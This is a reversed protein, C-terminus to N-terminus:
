SVLNRLAVTVNPVCTRSRALTYADIRQWTVLHEFPSAVSAVRIRSRALTLTCVLTCGLALLKRLASTVSLVNTPSKALTCADIRKSAILERLARIANLVCTRSRALIYADCESCKYPKEGTHVRKHVTLSGARAFRRDCEPCKFPKEGTHVRKHRSLDCARAFRKDCETCQYPKKNTSAGIQTEERAVTDNEAPKLTQGDVTSVTSSSADDPDHRRQRKQSSSSDGDLRRKKKKKNKRKALYKRAHSKCLSLPLRRPDAVRVRGRRTFCRECAPQWSEHDAARFFLCRDRVCLQRNGITAVADRSGYKSEFHSITHSAISKVCVFKVLLLLNPSTILGLNTKRKKEEKKKHRHAHRLFEASPVAALLQYQLHIATAPQHYTCNHFLVKRGLANDPLNLLWASFDPALVCEDVVVPTHADGAVRLSALSSNQVSIESRTGVFLMCAGGQVHRSLCSFDVYIHQAELDLLVLQSEINCFKVSDPSVQIKSLTVGRIQNEDDHQKITLAPAVKNERAQAIHCTVQTMGLYPGLELSQLKCTFMFDLIRTGPMQYQARVIRLQSLTPCYGVLFNLLTPIADKTYPNIELTVSEVQELRKLCVRAETYHPALKQIAQLNWRINTASGHLAWGILMRDSVLPLSASDRLTYNQVLYLTDLLRQCFLMQWLWYSDVRTNKSVLGAVSAQLNQKYNRAQQVALHSYPLALRSYIRQTDPRLTAPLMLVITLARHTSLAQEFSHNTIPWALEWSETRLAIPLMLTGHKAAKATVREALCLLRKIDNDKLDNDRLLQAFFDHSYALGGPSSFEGPAAGTRGWEQVWEGSTREDGEPRWGRVCNHQRDTVFVLDDSACLRYPAGLGGGFAVRVTMTAPGTLYLRGKCYAVGTVGKMSGFTVFYQKDNGTDFGYVLYDGASQQRVACRRHLRLTRRRSWRPAPRLHCYADVRKVTAVKTQSRITLRPEQQPCWLLPGSSFLAPARVVLGPPLKFSATQATETYKVDLELRELRAIHRAHNGIIQNLRVLEEGSDQGPGGEDDEIPDQRLKLELRQLDKQALALDQRRKSLEHSRADRALQTQSSLDDSLVTYQVRLSGDDAEVTAVLTKGQLVFTHNKTCPITALLSMDLASLLEGRPNIDDLLDTFSKGTGETVEGLDRIEQRGESLANSKRTPM